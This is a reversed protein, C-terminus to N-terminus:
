ERVIIASSHGPIEVMGHSVKVDTYGNGIKNLDYKLPVLGAQHADCIVKWKSEDIIENVRVNQPIESVNHIVLIKSVNTKKMKSDSELTNNILYVLVPIFLRSESGPSYDKISLNIVVEMNDNIHEPRIANNGSTTYANEISIWSGPHKVLKIHLAKKDSWKGLDFQNIQNRSFQISGFGNENFTVEFPNEVPNGDLGVRHVEGAVYITESKPGNIFTITLQKLKKNSFDTFLFPLSSSDVAESIFRIGKRVNDASKMRLGPFARRINILGKYYAKTSRAMPAFQNNLRDWRFMNTYDPSCFSNEHFFQTDEEIDTNITNIARNKEKDFNSLPKTRLIEDGGHIIIKGQSTFLLVNAQKILRARVVKSSDLWSANMKDWLTLGDHISLYNLCVNPFEAFLNYSNYFRDTDFVVNVPKFGKVGGVVGTAVRDIENLDGQIFGRNELRGTYSDRSTDNFFGININEKPHNIKTTAADEKFYESNTDLDSFVWAEGQLILENVNEPRYTKGVESRILRMTEHDHFGMLDFRFGDVKYENVFFQLSEIMLKRVMGRRSELSPGAGTHNSVTKDSNYRFYCGPAINEFTEISYVHNFVVDLIVGIGNNHLENVLDKFESIRAYPNEPNTSFWGELSFFNQADYGWNYNNEVADKGKFSRDYENVTYFKMVPLFQVHTIGLENLHNIKEIFGKFTGAIESKVVNPQITYDRVHTEYAVLDNENAMFDFNRYSKANRQSQAKPSNMDIIAAKGVNDNSSPNFAAMSFAYPDLALTSKGYAFVRYQYYLGELPRPIELNNENLETTWVGNDTRNLFVKTKLKLENQNEDFIVLEIKAAPPSWVKFFAVKNKLRVGFDSVEKAYFITDLIGGVTPDFFVNIFEDGVKVIYNKSFDLKPLHLYILTDNEYKFNPMQPNVALFGDSFADKQEYDYELVTIESPKFQKPANLKLEITEPSVIFASHFLSVNNLKFINYDNVMAMFKNKEQQQFLTSANQPSVCFWNVSFSILFIINIM